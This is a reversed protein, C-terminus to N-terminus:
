VMQHYFKDVIMRNDPKIEGIVTKYVVEAVDAPTHHPAVGKFLEKFMGTDVSGPTVAIVDIGAQALEGSLAQSFAIVAAKTASYISLEPIGVLGAGSSINIICKRRVICGDHEVAAPGTDMAKLVEQTVIFMGCLNVNIMKNWEDETMEEFRKRQAIGANNILVDLSGFKKMAANVARGVEDRDCVDGEHILIHEDEFSGEPINVTGRSYIVVNAGESIFKKATELGIGSAAGTIFVTKNHIKM